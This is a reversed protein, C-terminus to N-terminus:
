KNKQYLDVYYNRLKIAEEALNYGNAKIKNVADPNREYKKGNLADVWSKKDEVSIWSIQGTLDAAKSIRETDNVICHLGNVQAEILVVSLGEYRSPFAFIDFVNLIENVNDVSGLFIVSDKIGLEVCLDEIETKLEGNGVLILLVKSNKKHVEAFTRILFEHNKQYSLRGVHGIIYKDEIRFKERLEKRKKESFEYKSNDIANNLIYTKSVNKKGFLWKAASSSCAMFYNAEHRIKYRCINLYVLKLRNKLCDAAITFNTNHSHAIRINVGCNKAIKLVDAGIADSHSHVIDYKEKLILKKLDDHERQFSVRRPTILHVVGGENIFQQTLISNEAEEKTAHVAFEIKITRENQLAYYYNLVVSETGGRELANNLVYLIKIM